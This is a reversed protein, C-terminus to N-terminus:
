ARLYDGEWKRIMKKIARNDRIRDVLVTRVLDPLEEDSAFRLAVLQGPTLEDIRPRLDNPLLQALRLRMELRIVRDQVRLAFSRALYTLLVLSTAALSLMLREVSFETVLQWVSWFFVILVIPALVYHYAPVLRFHNAYTQPPNGAL